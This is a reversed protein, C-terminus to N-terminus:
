ASRKLVRNVSTRHWQGGYRTKLGESNAMQVIESITKGDSKLSRIRDCTQKEGPKDGFPKIGECHGNEHRKRLRAARLKQVIVSKEFQAVAGLIQRILVKTPEGSEVTLETGGETEIVRVGLSRCESYIIEGVMLDRAMRDSREVLIVRTGNARLAAFLDTLAPRDFADKTGTVGADFFEQQIEFGNGAAYALISERQRDPGDGKVQAKGSVRVYSFSPLKALQQETM